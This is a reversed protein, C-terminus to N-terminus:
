EHHKQYATSCCSNFSHEAAQAIYMVFSVVSQGNFLHFFQNSKIAENIYHISEFFKTKSMNKSAFLHKVRGLRCIRIQNQGCGARPMNASRSGQASLRSSVNEDQKDVAFVYVIKTRNIKRSGKTINRRKRM